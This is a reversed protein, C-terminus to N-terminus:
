PGFTVSLGDSLDFALGGALPDRFWAQFNWTSGPTIQTAASPPSTNDLLFTMVNATANVISLAHKPLRGDLVKTVNGRGKSQVDATRSSDCRGM